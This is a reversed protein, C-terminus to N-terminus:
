FQISEEGFDLKIEEGVEREGWERRIGLKNGLQVRKLKDLRTLSLDPVVHHTLISQPNGGSIRPIHPLEKDAADMWRIDPPPSGHASCSLMAGTTNSFELWSPPEQLFVPGQVHPPLSPSGTSSLKAVRSRDVGNYNGSHVARFLRAM